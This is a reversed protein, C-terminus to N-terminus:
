CPSLRTRATSVRLPHFWEAARGSSFTFFRKQDLRKPGSLLTSTDSETCFEFQPQLKVNVCWVLPQIVVHVLSAIDTRFCGDKFRQPEGCFNLRLHNNNSGRPRLFVETLFSWAPHRETQTEQDPASRRCTDWVLATGDEPHPASLANHPSKCLSRKWTIVEATQLSSGSGPPWAATYEASLWQFWLTGASILEIICGSGM